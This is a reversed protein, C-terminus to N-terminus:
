KQEKILESQLHYWNANLCHATLRPASRIRLYTLVGGLGFDISNMPLIRIPMLSM